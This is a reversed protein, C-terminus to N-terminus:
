AKWLKVNKRILIFQWYAQLLLQNIILGSIVGALGWQQIFFRSAMISFLFSFLYGIFFDKNFLLVRIALRSTYGAFILLYLVAMGQLAFAYEVYEAGGSIEVIKSAFVVLILSVPLMILISKRTTSWLYEKFQTVSEKHLRSAVPLVHNEFVQLLVNLVGFLTQALRLAGLAKMGLFLGSAVVFLNGAWWQLVATLLLWKGNKFQVYCTEKLVEKEPVFPQIYFVGILISPVYTVSIVLLVDHLDLKEFSIFLWIIQLINALADILLAHKAQGIALLVRRLFDQLLFTVIFFLVIWLYPKAFAVLPIDFVFLPVCLILFLGCLLLQGIFLSSIYGKINQHTAQLVQFPGIILANSISLLLYMFLMVSSYVGFEAIGLLRALMITTIFSGGSTVLQDVIVLKKETKMWERIDQIIKM